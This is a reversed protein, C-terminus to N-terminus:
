VLLSPSAAVGALHRSSGEGGRPGNPQADPRRGRGSEIQWCRGQSSLWRCVAQVSMLPLETWMGIPLAKLLRTPLHESAIKQTGVVLRVNTPLPLLSEFLAQMDQHDRHDRWVHDLGDIVVVLRRSEDQLHRAASELTKRLGERSTPLDPVVEELQRTLSHAIAHYHFRGESRDELSLFYHHRICVASRRDMREVCHSLYTSKGCGPPGWLVTVGDAGTM